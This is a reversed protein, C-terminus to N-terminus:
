NSRLQEYGNNKEGYDIKNMQTVNMFIHANFM